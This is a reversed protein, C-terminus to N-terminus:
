EPVGARAAAIRGYLAMQERCAPELAYYSEAARRCRRPLDADRLLARLERLGERYADDTHGSLVVGVREREIIQDTDSVRPTTIVPIGVAWYEGIKTPSCGHESIGQQLFFLGADAKALERAIERHPVFDLSWDGDDLGGARVMRRIREPDNHSLIRLHAEGSERAVAAFRAIRDLLYRDGVSGIYVLNLRKGDSAAAGRFPFREFDVCSRVVIVTRPHQQVEPRQEIDEKARNSLSVIATATKYLHREIAKAVRHVRSGRAWVGGDVQEDPYFGENHFIWPKRLLVAIARGMLGGIFTRGHVVDPRARLGAFVGAIVGRAIDYAKALAGPGKTYRLPKWRVGSADLEARVREVEAANSLDNAKEFTILTIQAGMAALQRIAPVVLSQGLPEIAGWYVIYLVSPKM